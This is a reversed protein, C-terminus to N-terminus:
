HEAGGEIWYLGAGLRVREDQAREHAEHATLWVDVEELFQQGRKEFFERFEPVADVPVALNTARGEFRAPAKRTPALNHVLTNGLDEFVSGARIVANEDAAAPMYYRKVPRVRGDTEVVSGARKLEKLLASAPVDGGYRQALELFSVESDSAAPLDAPEGANSFEPDLYWGSLVRSLRDQRGLVPPAREAWTERIRRVEKRDLGTLLATRSVNTPRRQLGYDATAVEVFLEKLLESADGHMVGQRLLLRVIPRLLRKWASLVPEQPRDRM